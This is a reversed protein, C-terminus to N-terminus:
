EPLYTQGSTGSFVGEYPAPMNAQARVHKFDNQSVAPMSAQGTTQVFLSKSSIPSQNNGVVGTFITKFDEPFLIKGSMGDFRYHSAEPLVVSSLVDAFPNQPMLAEGSVLGFMEEVPKPMTKSAQINNFVSVEFRKESRIKIPTVSIPHSQETSWMGQELITQAEIPVPTVVFLFLIFVSIGAKTKLGKKRQIRPTTKM